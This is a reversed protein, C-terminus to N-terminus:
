QTRVEISQVQYGASNVAVTILEKFENTNLTSPAIILAQKHAMSVKSDIVNPLQSIKKQLGYACFECTMGLINAKFVTQEAFAPTALLFYLPIILANKLHSKMM